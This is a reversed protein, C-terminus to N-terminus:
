STVFSASVRCNQLPFLIFVSPVRQCLSSAACRAACNTRSEFNQTTPNTLRSTESSRLTKMTFRQFTRASCVTNCVDWSVQVARCSSLVQLAPSLVCRPIVFCLTRTPFGWLTLLSQRISHLPPGVPLRFARRHQARDRSM